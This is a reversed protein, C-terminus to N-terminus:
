FHHQTTCSVFCHVANPWKVQDSQGKKRKSTREFRWLSNRICSNLVKTTRLGKHHSDLAFAHIQRFNKCPHKVTNPTRTYYLCRSRQPIQGCAHMCKQIYTHTYTCFSPINADLCTFLYTALSFTLIYTCITKMYMYHSTIRHSTIHHSATYTTCTLTM